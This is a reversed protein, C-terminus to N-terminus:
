VLPDIRETGLIVEVGVLAVKYCVLQKEPAHWAVSGVYDPPLPLLRLHWNKLPSIGKADGLFQPSEGSKMSVSIDRLREGIGEGCAKLYAEKGTWARFFAHTVDESPLMQFIALDDKCFVRSSIDHPDFDPRMHELDIGVKGQSTIALAIWDGSHSVSFEIEKDNKLVPRGWSTYTIEVSEPAQDLYRGLCKRLLGRGLVFRARDEGFRFRDARAREEACLCAELSPLADGAQSVQALWVVVHGLLHERREHKM